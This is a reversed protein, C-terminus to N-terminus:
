FPGVVGVGILGFTFMPDGDGVEMDMFVVSLDASDEEWRDVEPPSVWM